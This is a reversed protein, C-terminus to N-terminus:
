ADVGFKFYKYSNGKHRPYAEVYDHRIPTCQARGYHPYHQKALTAESQRLHTLPLKVLLMGM